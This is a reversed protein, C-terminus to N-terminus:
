AVSYLRRPRSFTYVSQKLLKAFFCAGRHKAPVVSLEARRNM